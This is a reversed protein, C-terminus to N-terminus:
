MQRDDRWGSPLFIPGGGQLHWNGDQLQSQFKELWTKFEDSTAFRQTEERGDPYRVVAVYEATENDYRTEVRLEEHSREFCWLM